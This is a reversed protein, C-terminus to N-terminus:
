SLSQHSCWSASVSCSSPMLSHSTLSSFCTPYSRDPTQEATKPFRGNLVRLGQDVSRIKRMWAARPADRHTPWCGTKPM